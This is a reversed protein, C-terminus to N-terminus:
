GDAHRLVQDAYADYEDRAQPANNMGIPDWETWFLESVGARNRRSRYRDRGDAM